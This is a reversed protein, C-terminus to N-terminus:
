YGQISLSQGILMKVASTVCLFDIFSRLLGKTVFLFSGTCRKPTERLYSYSAQFLLYGLIASIHFNKM